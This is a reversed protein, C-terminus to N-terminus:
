RRLIAPLTAEPNSYDWDPLAVDSRGAADRLVREFNYIFARHWILFDASSQGFHPCKNWFRQADVRAVGPDRALADAYAADNYAHTAAQFFRSKPDSPARAKMAAVGVGSRRWAAPDRVFTSLSQRTPHTQAM